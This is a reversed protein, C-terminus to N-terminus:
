PNEEPRTGARRALVGDAFGRRYSQDRDQDDLDDHGEPLLRVADAPMGFVMGTIGDSGPLLASLGGLSRRTILGGTPSWWLEPIIGDASMADERRLRETEPFPRRCRWDDQQDAKVAIGYCWQSIARLDARLRDEAPRPRAPTEGTFAALFDRWFGRDSM